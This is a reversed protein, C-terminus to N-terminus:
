VHRIFTQQLTEPRAPKFGKRASSVSIGIPGNMASTAITASTPVAEGPPTPVRSATITKTSVERSAIGGASACARAIAIEVKNRTKVIAFTMM